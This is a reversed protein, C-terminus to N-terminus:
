QYFPIVILTRTWGTDRSIQLALSYFILNSKPELVKKGNMKFTEVQQGHLWPSCGFFNETLISTGDAGIRTGLWLGSTGLTVNTPLVGQVWFYEALFM